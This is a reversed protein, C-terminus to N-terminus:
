LESRANAAIGTMADWGFKTLPHTVRYLYGHISVLGDKNRHYDRVLEKVSPLPTTRIGSPQPTPLVSQLLHVVHRGIGLSATLGTSRIGAAVVWKRRASLYMQYDRETSGPRIGVYDGVYQQHPDLDPIIRLIFSTLVDAVGPDPTRDHRSEQDQATPGVVIHGYLTSFCFIGKSHQTPVPQIPHTISTVNDAVFVRYQGRRPRARWAPSSIGPVNKQIVDAMIGTANVIAKGRLSTPALSNMTGDTDTIRVVNWVQADEEFWTQEPDFDFLTIIVAGNERAHAALAISYLWPDLVIEGPIHIAGVSLTSVNPEWQGLQHPALRTADVDGADHSQALVQTLPSKYGTTSLKDWEWQCVLSGCPRFPVNLAKLFPRIQSISDRILARELTGPAADVGTCLIGSNGGSAHSLLDAEKEVLACTWGALTAARLAALGVVGGGIIIVDYVYDEEHAQHDGM